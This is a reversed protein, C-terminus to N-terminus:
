TPEDNSFAFFLNGEKRSLIVSQGKKFVDGDNEPVMMLYHTQGHRDTTKVEAASDKSAKGIVVTAVSGILDEDRIATTEDQPLVLALFQNGVRAFPLSIAFVLPISLWNPLSYGLLSRMFDQTLLGLIGFSVLFIILTFIVPVRGIHLWTLVEATFTPTELDPLDLSTDPTDPLDFTDPIDLDPLLGDLFSFIGAGILTGVGELLALFFVITLATLFPLNGPDDFSFFLTM